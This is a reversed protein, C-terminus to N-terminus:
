ELGKQIRYMKLITKGHPGALARLLKKLDESSETDKYSPCLIFIHYDDIGLLKDLKKGHLAYNNFSTSAGVKAEGFLRQAAPLWLEQLEEGTM